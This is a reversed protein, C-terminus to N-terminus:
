REVFRQSRWWFHALSRCLDWRIRVQRRLTLRRNGTANGHHRRYLVLPRDIFVVEGGGLANVSGIWLDHNVDARNPFPLIKLLMRRRFAMTCGLYSCRILNALIGARFKGRQAYYSIALVNDNDDILAADSVVIETEPHAHFAQLVSAIRDTAWLDDQDSLLLIEGKACRIAEEFSRLVGENAIHREMRVRPDRFSTIIDCTRDTSADDVVILEDQASFQALISEIQAKLYHEGNYTAMCVSVSPRRDISIPRGTPEKSHSMREEMAQQWDRIRRSRCHTLRTMLTKWTLTRIGPNDGRKWQRWIRGLLRAAFVTRRLPNEYLDYFASEALLLNRFRDTSLSARDVVSLEHEVEIEGAVFVKKGHLYLQRYVNVDVYDLWFRPDFGGLEELAKVRFLSASNFARTEGGSIGRFGESFYRTGWFQVSMPSHLRGGDLLRPVIAAVRDDAQLEAVLRSMRSLYDGPLTTDQDLTLMWTYDYSRALKLARDYAAALGANQGAAEYRVGTPLSGPICAGPTNDYLLVKIRSKKHPLASIGATLSRFAPSQGPAMKYLVIVALVNFVDLDRAGPTDDLM